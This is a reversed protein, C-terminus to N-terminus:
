ACSRRDPREGLRGSGRRQCRDLM